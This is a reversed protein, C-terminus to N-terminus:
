LFRSFVLFVHVFVALSLHTTYQTLGQAWQACFLCRGRSWSEPDYGALYQVHVLSVGRVVRLSPGWLAGSVKM